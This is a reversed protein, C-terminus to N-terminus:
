PPKLINILTTALSKWTTLTVTLKDSTKCKTHQINEILLLKKKWFGSIEYFFYYLTLCLCFSMSLLNLRRCTASIANCSQFIRDTTMLVLYNKSQGHTSSLFKIACVTM